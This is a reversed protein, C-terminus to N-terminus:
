SHEAGGKKKKGGLRGMAIKNKNNDDEVKEVEEKKVEEDGDEM